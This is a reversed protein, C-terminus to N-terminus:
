FEITDLTNRVLMPIKIVIEPRHKTDFEDQQLREMSRAVYGEPNEFNMM